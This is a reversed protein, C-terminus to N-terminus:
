NLELEIQENATELKLECQLHNRNSGIYDYEVNHTHDGCHDCTWAELYEKSLEEKHGKWMEINLPNDKAESDGYETYCGKSKMVAAIGVALLDRFAESSINGQTDRHRNLVRKIIKIM